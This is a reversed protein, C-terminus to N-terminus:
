GNVAEKKTRKRAAVGAIASGALGALAAGGPVGFLTLLAGGAESVLRGGVDWGNAREDDAQTELAVREEKLREIQLQLDQVRRNFEAAETAAAPNSFAATEAKAREQTARSLAERADQLERRNAELADNTGSSVCGTLAVAVLIVIAIRKM